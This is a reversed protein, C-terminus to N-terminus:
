CASEVACRQTSSGLSNSRSELEALLLGANHNGELKNHILTKLAHYSDKVAESATAQIGVTAGSTLAAMILTILDM